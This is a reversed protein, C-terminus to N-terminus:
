GRTQGRLRTLLDRAQRLLDDPVGAAPGLTLFTDFADVARATHGLRGHLLGLERWLLANHPALLVMSDVLGAAEEWREGELARLKLNNQLRLAVDRNSAPAYHHPALEAALGSTAKLMQRMDSVTVDVGGAYPDLIVREGGQELRILFHGPFSLGHAGWGQSRAAHLFLIGLAVPLGRRRDMVRMLNANRPDEYDSDDGRYGFHDALVGRLADARRRLVSADDAGDDGAAAAKAEDLHALTLTIEELHARYPAPDEGTSLAALWLAALAPSIAADEQRGLALLADRAENRKVMQGM